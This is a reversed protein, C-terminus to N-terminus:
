HLRSLHAIKPDSAAKLKAVLSGEPSRLRTLVQRVLVAIPTEETFFDPATAPIPAVGLSKLFDHSLQLALRSAIRADHGRSLSMM